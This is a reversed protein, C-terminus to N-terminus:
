DISSIASPFAVQYRAAVDTLDAIVNETLPIGNILRAQETRSEPEGPMLIEDCGPTRPLRKIRHNFEDMRGQFDDLAMFLDPRLAFFLHGVNQPETKDFYLSKVEGGFNAGTLGGALLDMM